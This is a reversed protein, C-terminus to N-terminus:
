NYRRTLDELLECTLQNIDEFQSNLRHVKDALEKDKPQSLDNSNILMTMSNTHEMNTFINKEIERAQNIMESISNENKMSRMRELAYFSIPNTHYKKLIINYNTYIGNVPLFTM